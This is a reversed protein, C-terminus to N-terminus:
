VSEISIRLALAQFQKYCDQVATAHSGIAGDAPKLLVDILLQALNAAAISLIALGAFTLLYAYIRRISTM